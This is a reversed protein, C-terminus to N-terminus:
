MKADGYGSGSGEAGVVKADVVLEGLIGGAGVDGEGGGNLVVGGAGLGYGGLVGDGDEWCYFGGEAGIEAEVGGGDGNGGDMVVVGRRLKKLGADVAEDFLGDGGGERFGVGEDGEGGPVVADELDAVKLAEVGGDEGDLGLEGAGHEELGM